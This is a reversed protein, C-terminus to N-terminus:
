QTQRPFLQRLEELPLMCKQTSLCPLLLGCPRPGDVVVQFRQTLRAPLVRAVIEYASNHGGFHITSFKSLRFRDAHTHSQVQTAKVCHHVAKTPTHTM